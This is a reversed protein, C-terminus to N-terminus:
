DPDLTVTPSAELEALLRKVTSQQRENISLFEELAARSSGTSSEVLDGTDAAERANENLLMTLAIVLTGVEEDTLHRARRSPM